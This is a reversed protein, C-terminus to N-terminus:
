DEHIRGLNSRLTLIVKKKGIYGKGDKIKREIHTISESITPNQPTLYKTPKKGGCYVETHNLKPGPM